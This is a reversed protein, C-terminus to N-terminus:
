ELCRLAYTLAQEVSLAQGDQWAEVYAAADLRKSLVELNHQKQTQYLPLPRIGMAEQGREIAGYLRAASLFHQTALLYAAVMDLRIFLRLPERLSQQLLLSERWHEAVQALENQAFAMLGTVFHAFEEAWLYVNDRGIGDYAELQQQAQDYEGQHVAIEALYARARILAPSHAEGLSHCLMLCDALSVAAEALQGQYLLSEGLHSLVLSKATYSSLQDFITVSERFQEDAEALKGQSLALRGLLDLTWAVQRQDSLAEFQARCFQGHQAAEVWEGKSRAVEGLGQHALAIGRKNDLKLSLELSSQFAWVMTTYDRWDYALWGSLRLVEARMPILHHATQELVTQTVFRREAQFGALEWFKWLALVFRLSLEGEEQQLTWSVAAQLNAQEQLLTQQWSQLRSLDHRPAMQEALGLYYLAFNREIADGQEREALREWAYERTLALLHFRSEGQTGVRQQLLSQDVLAALDQPITQAYDQTQCVATAAERSFEGAFVALRAFLLQLGEALLQYSWDLIARPTQQQSHLRKPGTSLFNLRKAGSLRVLLAQPSYYKAQFAALEIALPLGDLLCCLEAIAEVNEEDLRLHRQVAQARQIFLAVAPIAKVAEVNNLAAEEPLPLPMLMFEHEGYIRLAARSTVVIKLGPVAMLIEAIFPASALLHEFNDLVLLCHRPQLYNIIADATVDPLNLSQAITAPLSVATAQSLDVFCVEDAFHSAVRWALEIGLRTKGVGGPGLLTLLRTEDALLLPLLTQLLPEVGVLGTLPTPLRPKKVSSTTRAVQHTFEFQWHNLATVLAPILEKLHYFYTARSVNLHYAYVDSIEEPNSLVVELIRQQSPALPITQLFEYVAKLGGRQALWSQWPEEQILRFPYRPFHLLAKVHEEDWPQNSAHSKEDM